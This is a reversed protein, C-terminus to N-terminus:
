LRRGARWTGGRRGERQRSAIADSSATEGPSAATSRCPRPGAETLRGPGVLSASELAALDMMARLFFASPSQMTWGAARLGGMPTWAVTLRGRRSLPLTVDM